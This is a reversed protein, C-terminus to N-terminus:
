RRAVDATHRNVRGGHHGGEQADEQGQREEPHPAEDGAEEGREGSPVEPYWRPDLGLRHVYM